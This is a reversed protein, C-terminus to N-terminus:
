LPFWGGFIVTTLSCCKLPIRCSLILVENNLYPYNKVNESRKSINASYNTLM